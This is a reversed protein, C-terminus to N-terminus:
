NDEEVPQATDGNYNSSSGEGTGDGLVGLPPGDHGGGCQLHHSVTSGRTNRRERRPLTRWLVRGGVGGYSAARLVQTPTPPGQSRCWIGGSYGSVQVQGLCQIGQASVVMVQGYGTSTTTTPLQPM